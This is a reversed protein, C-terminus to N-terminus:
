DRPEDLNEKDIELDNREYIGQTEETRSCDGSVKCLAFVMLLILLVVIVIVAIM